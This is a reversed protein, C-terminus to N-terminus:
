AAHMLASVVAHDVSAGSAVAHDREHVDQCLAPTCGMGHSYPVHEACLAEPAATCTESSIAHEHIHASAGRVAGM